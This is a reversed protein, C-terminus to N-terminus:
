AEVPVAWQQRAFEVIREARAKIQAAGWAEGKRLTDGIYQDALSTSFHYAEAEEAPTNRKRSNPGQTMLALNGLNHLYKEQFELSYEGSQPAIHDLTQQWGSLGWSNFLDAGSMEPRRLQRRLHNEYHWLLYRTNREYHSDAELRRHFDGTFAWYWQFGHEARQRLAGTLSAADGQYQRALGHFDNTRYSGTSYAKKFLTIEMLRYLRERLATDDPHHHVIKLLLPWSSGADLHLVGTVSSYGRSLEELARVALFSRVLQDAYRRIWAAREAEPVARLERKAGEFGADGKGFAMVHHSFVINEGLNIEESLKYIEGFANEVHRITFDVEASGEALYAQYMLYAKLKELETLDIGRDNQFAFIQTAQVKDAVEFRTIRAGEVTQMWRLLTATDVQQFRKTFAALAESLRRQAQRRLDPQASAGQHLVAQEFYSQDDPVTRLKPRGHLLLYREGLRWPEVLDGDADRLQNGMVQMTAERVKLEKVLASFFLVVTTLRQQGDIVQYHPKSQHARELLFHGLFYDKGIPQEELDTLFQALQDKARWAYARQYSPILFSTDSPEFLSKITETAM